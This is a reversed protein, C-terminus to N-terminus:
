LGSKDGMVLVAVDVAAALEVAAAFGDTSDGMVDCGRAYSVSPGFRARMAHVVSVASLEGTEIEVREVGPTSLSSRGSDLVNRLSEVHAPYAYDGFMNRAADANPGILAISGVGPGLPLIGDNKLLVISKEAITRALERHGATAAVASARDVDVYPNDFVGLD